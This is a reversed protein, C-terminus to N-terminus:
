RPQRNHVTTSPQKGSAADWQEKTLPVCQLTRVAGNLLGARYHAESAYKVRWRKWIRRGAGIEIEVAHGYVPEVGQKRLNAKAVDWQLKDLPMCRVVREMGAAKKAVIAASNPFETKYLRWQRSGDLMKIEVAHGYIPATNAATTSM